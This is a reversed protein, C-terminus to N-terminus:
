ADIVQRRRRPLSIFTTREPQQSIVFFVIAVLASSASWHRSCAPESWRNGSPSLWRGGHSHYGQHLGDGTGAAAPDMVTTAEAMPETGTIASTRFPALDMLGAHEHHGQLRQAGQEPREPPQRSIGAPQDSASTTKWAWKMPRSWGPPRTRRQRSRTSPMPSVIALGRPRSESQLAEQARKLVQAFQRAAEIPGITSM